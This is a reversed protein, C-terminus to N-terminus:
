ASFLKSAYCVALSGHNAFGAELGAGVEESMEIEETHHM